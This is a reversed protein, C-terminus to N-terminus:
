KIKIRGYIRTVNRLNKTFVPGIILDIDKLKRAKIIQQVKTSDNETDYVFLNINIGTKSLSDIAIILGELYQLAMYSDKHIDEKEQESESLFSLLSDNKSSYFPLLM